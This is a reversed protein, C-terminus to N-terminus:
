LKTNHNRIEAHVKLLEKIKVLEGKVTPAKSYIDKIIQLIQYELLKTEQAYLAIMKTEAEITAFKIKTEMEEDLVKSAKVLKRLEDTSDLVSAAAENNAAAVSSAATKPTPPAKAKDAVFQIDVKRKKKQEELLKQKKRLEEEQEDEFELNLKKAGM